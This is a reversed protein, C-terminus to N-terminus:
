FFPAPVDSCGKFLIFNSEEFEVFNLTKGPPETIFSRGALAPSVPEIGPRPLDWMSLLLDAWSGCTNLRHELAQSSCSGFGAYEVAQARCCSFSNCHSARVSCTSLGVQQLQLFLGRMLLVWCLWFLYFNKLFKFYLLSLYLFLFQSIRLFLHVNEQGYILCHNRLDSMSLVLM